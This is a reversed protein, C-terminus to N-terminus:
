RTCNGTGVRADLASAQAAVPALEEMTMAYGRDADTQARAFVVGAVDGEGTLLPGGSDGPQVAAALAYISRPSSGSDSIDPVSVTGVSLVQAPIQTFPGGYPYGQVVAAAGVSLTTTLPLPATDLGDVAIVALDDTADFYVVRGERAMQGPLEVIPADVGAVVHANTVLRGPAVVFGTGTLGVGCAYATGAIRAVSAAAVALEPDDLALQATDPVAEPNLLIGLRPLGAGLVEGRLRALTATVPPPTLGEIVALVRSSAVSSSVTPIGTAALSSGVLSTALAAIVLSAAAGLFRDIGRLPTRDVGRRVLAGLASGLAAGGILLAVSMAVVLVARWVPWPVAGSVIPALWYVAAGGAILGILTGLSAVFGRVAGAVIALVIVLILAIDLADVLLVAGAYTGSRHTGKCSKCKSDM